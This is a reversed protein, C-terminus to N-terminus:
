VGSSAFDVRLQHYVLEIGSDRAYEAVSVHVRSSGGHVLIARAAGTAAWDQNAVFLSRYTLLQDVDAISPAHQKCEVLVPTGDSDQLVADIRGGNSVTLERVALGPHSILGPELQGPHLAIYDSLAQEMAFNGIVSGWNRQDNMAARMPDLCDLDIERITARAKGPSFRIGVPLTVVMSPDVPGTGLEWRVLIRRGNEGHPLGQRRPVVPNWEDDTVALRFIRGLRGVRYNPLSAVIWDGERMKRLANRAGSWSADKSPGEWTYDDGPPWGVACIQERFWYQWQGPHHGIHCHVRWFSTSETM